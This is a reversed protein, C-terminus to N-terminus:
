WWSTRFQCSKFFVAMGLGQESNVPNVGLQKLKELTFGIGYDRIIFQWNETEVQSTLTIKTSNNAKTARIANNILNLIAPLLSRMRWSPLM